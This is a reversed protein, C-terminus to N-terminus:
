AEWLLLKRFFAVVWVAGCLEVATGDKSEPSRAGGNLEQWWGVNRTMMVAYFKILDWIKSLLSTHYQENQDSPDIFGRFKFINTGSKTGMSRLHCRVRLAVSSSHVGWCYFQALWYHLQWSLVEKGRSFRSVNCKHSALGKRQHLSMDTLHRMRRCPVPLKGRSFGPRSEPSDPALLLTAGSKWGPIRKGPKWPNWWQSWSGGSQSSLPSASKSSLWPSLFSSNGSNMRKLVHHSVYSSSLSAIHDTTTTEMELSCKMPLQMMTVKLLIMPTKVKM